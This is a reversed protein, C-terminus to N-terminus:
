NENKCECTIVKPNNLKDAKLHPAMYGSYGITVRIYEIGDICIIHDGKQVTEKILENTTKLGAPKSCGCFIFACLFILAFFIVYRLVKNM